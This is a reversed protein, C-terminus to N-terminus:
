QIEYVPLLQPLSLTNRDPSSIYMFLYLPCALLHSCRKFIYTTGQKFELCYAILKLRVDQAVVDETWIERTLKVEDVYGKFWEILQFSEPSLNVGIYMHSTENGGPRSTTAFTMALVENVYLYATNSAHVVLTLKYWVGAEYRKPTVVDKARDDYYMFLGTGNEIYYYLGAKYFYPEEGVISVITQARGTSNADPKVWLSLTYGDSAAEDKDFCQTM